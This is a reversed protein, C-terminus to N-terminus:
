PKGSVVSLLTGFIQMFYAFRNKLFNLGVSVFYYPYNQTRSVVDHSAELQELNIVRVPVIPRKSFSAFRMKHELGWFKLSDDATFTEPFVPCAKKTDTKKSSSPRKKSSSSHVVYELCERRFCFIEELVPKTFVDALQNESDVFELVFDGNGVHDRIFHHKIDIHKAEKSLYIM